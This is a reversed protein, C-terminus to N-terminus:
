WFMAANSLLRHTRWAIPYAIGVFEHASKSLCPRSHFCLGKPLPFFVLNLASSGIDQHHAEFSNPHRYLACFVLALVAVRAVGRVGVWDGYVKSSASLNQFPFRPNFGFVESKFLNLPVSPYCM